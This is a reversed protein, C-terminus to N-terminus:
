LIYDRLRQKLQNLKDDYQLHLENSIEKWAQDAEPNIEGVADGSIRLQHLWARCRRQIDDKVKEYKQQKAQQHEGYIEMINQKIEEIREDKKLAVVGYIAREIVEISGLGISEILKEMAAKAVIDGNHRSVEEKFLKSYGHKLYKEALMQGIPIYEAEKNKRLEEPTMSPVKELKESIIEWRSRIEGM